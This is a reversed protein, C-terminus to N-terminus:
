RRLTDSVLALGLLHRQPDDVRPVGRLKNALLTRVGTWEYDTVEYRM